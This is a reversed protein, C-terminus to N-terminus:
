LNGSVIEAVLSWAALALLSSAIGTFFRRKHPLLMLGLAGCVFALFSLGYYGALLMVHTSPAPEGHGPWALWSVSLAAFAGVATIVGGIVALAAIDAKHEFYQSM